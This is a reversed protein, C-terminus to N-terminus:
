CVMHNVRLYEDIFTDITQYISSLVFNSQGGHTGIQGSLWTTAGSRVESVDDTVPKMYMAEAVFAAGVVHIEVVLKPHLGAVIGLRRKFASLRM